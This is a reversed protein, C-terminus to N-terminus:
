GLTQEPGFLAMAQECAVVDVGMRQSINTQVRNPQLSRVEFAQWVKGRTSKGGPGPARPKM